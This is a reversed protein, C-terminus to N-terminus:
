MESSLCLKKLTVGVQQCRCLESYCINVLDRLSLFKTFCFKSVVEIWRAMWKEVTAKAEDVLGLELMLQVSGRIGSELASAIWAHTYSTHEGVFIMQRVITLIAQGEYFTGLAVFKDGVNNHTKFYEPLYLQHQGIAPSAWSASELPDLIWCRRDFKGTYQEQVVEGHIEAM